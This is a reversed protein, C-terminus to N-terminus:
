WEIEPFGDLSGADDHPSRYHTRAESPFRAQESDARVEEEVACKQETSSQETSSQEASGELTPKLPQRRRTEGSAIGGKRGGDSMGKRGNEIQQRSSNHDLYDHVEIGGDVDDFLRVATLASTYRKREDDTCPFVAVLQAYALFGDTRNVQCYACCACYFGFAALRDDDSLALVKHHWLLTAYIAAYPGGAV